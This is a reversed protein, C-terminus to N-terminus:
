LLERQITSRLGLIVPFIAFIAGGRVGYLSESGREDYQGGGGYSSIRAIGGVGIICTVYASLGRVQM